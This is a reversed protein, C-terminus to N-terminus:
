SAGGKRDARLENWASELEDTSIRIDGFDVKARFEEFSLPQRGKEQARMRLKRYEEVVLVERVVSIRSPPRAHREKARARLEAHHEDCLGALVKMEEDRLQRSRSRRRLAELGTRGMRKGPKFTRAELEVATALAKKLEHVTNGAEHAITLERRYLEVVDDLIMRVLKRTLKELEPFVSIRKEGRPMIGGDNFFNM